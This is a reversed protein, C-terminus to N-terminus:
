APKRRPKAAPSRAASAGAAASKAPSKAAPKAAPKTRPKTATKKAAKTAAKTASKTAPKAASKETRKGGPKGAATAVAKPGTEVGPPPQAGSSSAAKRAAAVRLRVPKGGWIEELSYYARVPPLLVHVVLDGLDVLVWEGTEEGEISLVQGGAEKVREAVRAALSRTHRNSTGSALVVCDFLDSLGTTDLVKIDQAKVDELADVVTRQLKRLEM